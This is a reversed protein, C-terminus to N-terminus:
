HIPAPLRLSDLWYRGMESPTYTEMEDERWMRDFTKKLEEQNMQEVTDWTATRSYLTRSLLAIICLTDVLSTLM